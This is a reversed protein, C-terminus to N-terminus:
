ETEHNKKNYKKIYEILLGMIIIGFTTGIVIGFIFDIRIIMIYQM